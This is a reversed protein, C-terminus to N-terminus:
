RSDMSMNFCVFFAGDSGDVDYVIQAEGLWADADGELLQLGVAKDDSILVVVYEEGVGSLLYCVGYIFAMLQQALQKHLYSDVFFCGFIVGALHLVVDALFGEFTQFLQIVVHSSLHCRLSPASSRGCEAM